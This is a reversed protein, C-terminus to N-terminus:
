PTSHNSFANRYTAAAHPLAFDRGIRTEGHGNKVLRDGTKALPLQNTQIALDRESYFAKPIGDHREGFVDRGRM